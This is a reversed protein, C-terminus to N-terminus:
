IYGPINETPPFLIKDYLSNWKGKTANGIINIIQNHIGPCVSEFWKFPTCCFIGFIIYMNLWKTLASVIALWGYNTALTQFFPMYDIQIITYLM